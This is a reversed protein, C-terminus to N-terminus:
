KLSTELGYMSFYIQLFKSKGIALSPHNMLLWSCQEEGTKAHQFQSLVFHLALNSAAECITKQDNFYLTKIIHNKQFFKM